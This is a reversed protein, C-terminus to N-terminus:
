PYNRLKFYTELKKYNTQFHDGPMMRQNAKTQSNPIPAIMNTHSKIYKSHTSLSTRKKETKFILLYRTHWSLILIMMCMIKLLLWYTMKLSTKSYVPSSFIVDTKLDKYFLRVHHLHNEELLNNIVNTNVKINEGYNITFMQITQSIDRM